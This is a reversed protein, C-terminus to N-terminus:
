DVDGTVAPFCLTFVSGRGAESAVGVTGGHAEVTQRVLSLGIGSGKIQSESATRGRYFLKFIHPLDHKEIGAGNDEVVIEVQKSIKDSAVRVSIEICHLAQAKGAYKVANGILNGVARRVAERDALIEPLEPEIKLVVQFGGGRLETQYDGLAAEVIEAANERRIEYRRHNAARAGAFELVQEVMASLRREEDKILLGYEKIQAADTLIGDAINESAARIVALPTRLEHTISAVFDAQQGSFRQARNLLVILLAGSASLLLLIGFSIILNRRRTADITEDLSGSRHRATLRWRGSSRDHSPADSSAASDSENPPAAVIVSVAVNTQRNADGTTPTRTRRASVLSQIDNLKLAFLDSQADSKAPIETAASSTGSQYVIEAPEDRTMVTVDYRSADDSEVPNFYREVLLPFLEKKIYGSDLVIMTYGVRRISDRLRATSQGADSQLRNLDPLNISTIPILLSPFDAAGIPVSKTKGADELEREIESRAGDLHPLWATEEFRRTKDDFVSLRLEGREDQNATFIGGVMEPFAATALFRERRVAYADWNKNEFSAADVQLELFVRTLERDFDRSLNEAATKASKRMRERENDSTQGIWRYQLWALTLLLAALLVVAPFLWGSKQFRFKVVTM